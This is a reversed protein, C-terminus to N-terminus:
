KMSRYTIWEVTALVVVQAALVVLVLSTYWNPAFWALTLWLLTVPVAIKLIAKRWKVKSLALDDKM